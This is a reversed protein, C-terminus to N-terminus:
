YGLIPDARLSELHKMGGVKELYEWHDKANYVYEDLYSQFAKPSVPRRLMTRSRGPTMITSATSLLRTPPLPCNWWMRFGNFRPDGDAGPERRIFDTSVIHEAIVITRKSAKVQEANDWKPGMIWANGEADAIQVQVVAM